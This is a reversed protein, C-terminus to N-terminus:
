IGLDFETVNKSVLKASVLRRFAAGNLDGIILNNQQVYNAWQNIAAPIQALPQPDNQTITRTDGDTFEVVMSVYNTTTEKDAM